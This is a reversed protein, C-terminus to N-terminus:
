YSEEEDEDTKIELVWKLAEAWGKNIDTMGLNHKKSFKSSSETQKIAKEIEKKSKM